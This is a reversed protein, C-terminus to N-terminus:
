FVKIKITEGFTKYLKRALGSPVDHENFRRRDGPKRRMVVSVMNQEPDYWGRFYENSGEIFTNKMLHPWNMNHTGGIATDIRGNFFIWCVGPEYEEEPNRYDENQGISFYQDAEFMQDGEEGEDYDQRRIDDYYRSALKYWNM